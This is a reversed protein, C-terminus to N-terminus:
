FKTPTLPTRPSPLPNFSFCIKQGEKRFVAFKPYVRASAAIAVGGATGIGAFRENIVPRTGPWIVIPPPTLVAAADEMVGANPLVGVRLTIFKNLAPSSTRKMLPLWEKLKPAHTCPM